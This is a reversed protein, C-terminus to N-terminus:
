ICIAIGSGVGKENESGDTYIEVTYNTDDCKNKLEVALFFLHSSM